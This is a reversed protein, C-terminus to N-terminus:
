KFKIALDEKEDGVIVADFPFGKKKASKVCAEAMDQCSPCGIGHVVTQFQFAVDYPQVQTSKMFVLKGDIEIVNALTKSKQDFGAKFSLGVVTVLTVLVITFIKLKRKM